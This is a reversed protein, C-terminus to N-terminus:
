SCLTDSEKEIFNEAAKRSLFLVKGFDDVTYDCVFGNESVRIKWSKDAKQQLMSVKGELIEVKNNWRVSRLWVPQGIFCPLKTYQDKHKFGVSCEEVTMNTEETIHYGCAQYCLCDKCISM